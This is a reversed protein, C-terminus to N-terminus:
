SCMQVVIGFAGVAVGAISWYIDKVAIVNSLSKFRELETAIADDIEAHVSALTKTLRDSLDEVEKEVRRLRQEDTGGRTVEGEGTLEVTVVM